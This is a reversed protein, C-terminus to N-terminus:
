DIVAGYIAPASGHANAAVSQLRRYEFSSRSEILTGVVGQAPNNVSDWGPISQYITTLTNAACAIPGNVVNAFELTISGGTPIVGGTLCKYKNNS